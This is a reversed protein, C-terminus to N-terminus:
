KINLLFGVLLLFDTKAKQKFCVDYNQVKLSLTLRLTDFPTFIFM